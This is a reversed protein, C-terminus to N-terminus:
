RGIFSLAFVDGISSLQNVTNLSGFCVRVGAFTLLMVISFAALIYDNRKLNSDTLETPHSTNGFARSELAMSMTEMRGLSSVVLPVFMPVLGKFRDVITKESLGRARQASAIINAERTSIPILQLSTSLMFCFNYPVGLKHIGNMMDAPRTTTVFLESILIISSLRLWNVLGMYFGEVTYTGFFPLTLSHGFFSVPTVGVPNVFGHLILLFFMMIVVMKTMMHSFARRKIAIVNFALASVFLLALVSPTFFMYAIVTYVLLVLLKIRCDCRHFFSDGQIYLSIDRM